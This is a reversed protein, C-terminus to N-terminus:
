QLGRACARQPNIVGANPLFIISSTSTRLRGNLSVNLKMYLSVDPRMDAM